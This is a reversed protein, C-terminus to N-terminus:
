VILHDLLASLQEESYDKPDGRPCAFPIQELSQLKAQLRPLAAQGPDDGDPWLVVPSGRRQLQQVQHPSLALGGMALSPYGYQVLHLADLEGEVLIIWRTVRANVHWGYLSEHKPAGKDAVYKPRKPDFSRWNVWLLKGAADCWPIGLGKQPDSGLKAQRALLPDTVGKTNLWKWHNMTLPDPWHPRYAVRPTRTDTLNIPVRPSGMWQYVQDETMVVGCGFCHGIGKDPSYSFSPRQDGRSHGATNPCSFQLQDEGRSEIGKDALMQRWQAGTYKGRRQMSEYTQDFQRM